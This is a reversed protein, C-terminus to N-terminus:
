NFYQNDLKFLRLFVVRIRQNEILGELPCIQFSFTLERKVKFIDKFTEIRNRKRFFMMLSTPVREFEVVETTCKKIIKMARQLDLMKLSSILKEDIPVVVKTMQRETVSSVVINQCCIWEPKSFLRTSISSGHVKMLEKCSVMLYYPYRRYKDASMCINKPYTKLFAIGVRDEKSYSSFNDYDAEIYKSLRSVESSNVM